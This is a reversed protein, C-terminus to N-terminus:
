VWSEECLVGALRKVFKNEPNIRYKKPNYPLEEVWGIEVLIRLQRRLESPSMNTLKALTYKTLLGRSNLALERLIRLRVRSGLGLEVRDWAEKNLRSRRSTM